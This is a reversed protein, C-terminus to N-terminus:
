LSIFYKRVHSTPVGFTVGDSCAYLTVSYRLVEIVVFLPPGKAGKLMDGIAYM